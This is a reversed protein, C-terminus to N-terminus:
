LALQVVEAFAMVIDILGFLLNCPKLKRDLLVLSDQWLNLLVSM